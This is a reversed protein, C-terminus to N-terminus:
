FLFGVIDLIAHTANTGARLILSGGASLRVITTTALNQDSGFWNLVSTDPIESDAPFAKLFGGSGSTSTVTLTCLVGVAGTPVRPGGRSPSIGTVQVEVNTAPQLKTGLGIPPHIGPRSDFLRFPTAMLNISGSSGGVGDDYGPAAASIRRWKGPSGPESCVALQGSADSRIEGVSHAGTTPILPDSPDLLLPARNGGARIAVGGSFAEIAGRSGKDWAYVVPTGGGDTSTRVGYFAGGGGDHRAYIVPTTTATSTSTFHGSYGSGANTVVLSPNKSAANSRAAGVAYLADASSTVVAMGTGTCSLNTPSAATNMASGLLLPDGDAAAAPTASTALAAAGAVAGVGVAGATRLLTRRGVTGNGDVPGGGLAEGARVPLETLPGPGPAAAPVTAPEPGRRALEARLHDVEVELESLRATLAALVTEVSSPEADATGHTAAM